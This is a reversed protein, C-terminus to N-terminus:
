HMGYSNVSQSWLRWWFGPAFKVNLRPYIIIPVNQFSMQIPTTQTVDVFDQVYWKININIYTLSLICIYTQGHKKCNYVLYSCVHVVPRSFVIKKFVSQLCFHGVVRSFGSSFCIYICNICERFGVAFAESCLGPWWFAFEILNVLWWNEPAIEPILLNKTWCWGRFVHLPKRKALGLACGFFIPFEAWNFSKISSAM